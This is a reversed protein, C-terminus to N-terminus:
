ELFKCYGLKGKILVAYIGSEKEIIDDALPFSTIKKGNNNIIEIGDKTKLAFLNDSLKRTMYVNNYIVNLNGDLITGWAEYCNGLKKTHEYKPDLAFIFADQEIIKQTGVILIYKIINDNIGSAHCRALCSFTLGDITTDIKGLPKYYYIDKEADVLIKGSKVDMIVDGKTKDSKYLLINQKFIANREEDSLQSILYESFRGKRYIDKRDKFKNTVLVEGQANVIGWMSDWKAFIYDATGAILLDEFPQSIHGNADILYAKKDKNVQWVAYESTDIGKVYWPSKFGSFLNKGHTDIITEYDKQYFWFFHDHCIMVNSAQYIIKGGKELLVYKEEGEKILTVYDNKFLIKGLDKESPQDAFASEEDQKGLQIAKNDQIMQWNNDLICDNQTINAIYNSTKEGDQKFLGTGFVYEYKDETVAINHAEKNEARINGTKTDYTLSTFVPQQIIKGDLSLLGLHRNKQFPITNKLFCYIGTSKKWAWKEPKYNLASILGEGWINYPQLDAIEYKLQRPEMIWKVREQALTLTAYFLLILALVNKLLKTNM